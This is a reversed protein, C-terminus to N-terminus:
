KNNKGEKQLEQVADLVRIDPSLVYVHDSPSRLARYLRQLFERKAKDKYFDWYAHSHTKQLIKWFTGQVNPNPYKTYVVSNCVDGPFDVGRNCRTSFLVDNLKSKFMSIMKGDRDDKQMKRLNDKSIVHTLWLDGMEKDSPLDEFANVHVLTPRKAKQLCLSLSKLYEERTHKGSSFNSYRCDMEKGTRHIEVTGQPIVEAEVIAYDEIGFISKLVNKSHITGSMFIFCKNKSVLENLKQSINTTVLNVYLDRDDKKYTVYTDELFHIFEKAIEIAKNGYSVDDLAFEVELNKSSVLLRMISHLKTDKIHFIANEDVGLAAKNQEELKILEQIRECIQYTEESVDYLGKISNALRTLNIEEQTSFSDLFEDAEDIIEVDTEPKRDLACEIKYKASNFIIVDANLYDDYQDYYTCGKKRQYFIFNKGRLGKYKKKTADKLQSLDVEEPVIPSWYPNTPAISIRKMDKISVSGKNKIIPNEAYYDFLKDSNKETIAITDPLFPDACSTGPIFLSDHNERGTIMAIKLREGSMKFVNKKGMYDEQYQRQLGKLPVVISTRGVARAVNLAIASKGTGCAGHLFIIKKGKQVLEVLERVVGRQTKGNSFKLPELQREGDYLSWYEDDFIGEPRKINDSYVKPKFREAKEEIAMDLDSKGGWSSKLAEWDEKM